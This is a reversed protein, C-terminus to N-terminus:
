QPPSRPPTPPILRSQHSTVPSQHSTVPSQHSTVPSQHSTVPSQHSTVPSFTRLCIQNHLDLRKLVKRNPLFRMLKRKFNILQGHTERPCLLVSDYRLQPAGTRRNRRIDGLSESPRRCSFQQAAQLNRASLKLFRPIKNQQAAIEAIDRRLIILLNPPM